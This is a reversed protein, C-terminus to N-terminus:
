KHEQIFELCATKSNSFSTPLSLPGLLSYSVAWVTLLLTVLTLLDGLWGQPPCLCSYKLREALGASSQLPPHSSVLIPSLWSEVKMLVSSRPKQQDEPALDTNTTTTSITRIEMSEVSVGGSEM